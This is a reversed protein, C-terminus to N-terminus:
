ASIAPKYADRRIQEQQIDIVTLDTERAIIPLLAHNADRPLHLKHLREWLRIRERAPSLMSRQAELQRHREARAANEEQEIRARREEVTGNFASDSVPHQM